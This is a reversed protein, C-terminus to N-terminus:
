ISTLSPVDCELLGLPWITQATTFNWHHHKVAPFDWDTKLICLLSCFVVCLKWLASSKGISLPFFFLLTHGNGSTELHKSWFKMKMLAYKKDAHLCFYHTHTFDSIFIHTFTKMRVRSIDEPLEVPGELFPFDRIKKHSLKLLLKISWSALVLDGLTIFWNEGSLLHYKALSTPPLLM